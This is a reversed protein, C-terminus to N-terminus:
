PDGVYFSYALVDTQDGSAAHHLDSQTRRRHQLFDPDACFHNIRAGHPREVLLSQDVRGLLSRACNNKVFTIFTVADGSFKSRHNGGACEVIQVRRDLAHAGHM